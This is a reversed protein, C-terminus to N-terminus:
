RQIYDKAMVKIRGTGSEIPVAKLEFNHYYYDGDHITIKATSSDIIKGNIEVKGSIECYANVELKYVTESEKIDVGINYLKETELKDLIIVLDNKRSVLPFCSSILFLFILFYLSRLNKKCFAKM